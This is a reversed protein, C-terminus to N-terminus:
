RKKRRSLVKDNRARIKTGGYELDGEGARLLQEGLWRAMQPTIIFGGGGQSGGTQTYVNEDFKFSVEVEIGGDEIGSDKVDAKITKRVYSRKLDEIQERWPTKRFDMLGWLKMISKLHLKALTEGQYAIVEWPTKLDM